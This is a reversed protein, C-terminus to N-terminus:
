YYKGTLVRNAQVEAMASETATFLRSSKHIHDKYGNAMNIFDLEDYQTRIIDYLRSPVRDRHKNMYPEADNLLKLEYNNFVYIQTFTIDFLFTIRANKKFKPVALFIFFIAGFLLVIPIALRKFGYGQGWYNGIIIGGLITNILILLILM